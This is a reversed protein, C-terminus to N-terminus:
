RRRRTRRGKESGGEERMMWRGIKEEVVERKTGFRERSHRVLFDRRGYREEIPPHMQTLIPDSVEGNYFLKVWATYQNLDLFARSKVTPYQTELTLADSSGVRFAVTTGVNGFIASKLRRGLLEDGGGLQDLYQHCITLCLRYKRAESLISEFSDTTFNQFEDIYLHFDERENEPIAARSMAANKFQAVLFSGLLRSNEEGILGKSLNAIFIQRTDMVRRIDIANRTQGIINRMPTATTFQGVKNLIPGAVNLHKKSILEPFERTWFDLVAPNKVYGLVKRRFRPDTLM